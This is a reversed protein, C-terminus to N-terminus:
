AKKPVYGGSGNRVIAGKMELKLLIGAIESFPLGSHEILEDPSHAGNKICCFVAEEEKDLYLTKEKMTESASPISLAQLVDETCTLILAGSRILANCSYSLPDDIRGPLAFIDKGQAIAHDVTILSGSHETAQIVIVVDSLGSIIRNRLPFDAPRAHYGPPRESIIGGSSVLGRYLDVNSSPYCLDVGGGLVAYSRGEKELAGRGAYGDIGLAMGSIVNVGSLALERGFFFASERGYGSCNRAGIIAAAKEGPDPLKGRVFIGFPPDPIRLLRDPFDPDEEPLYRIGETKMKKLEETLFRTSRVTEFQDIESLNIEIGLSFLESSPLARFAAKGGAREVMTRLSQVPFFTLYQLFLADIIENM